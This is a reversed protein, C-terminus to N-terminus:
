LSVNPDVDADYDISAFGFGFLKYFDKRYGEIDSIQQLNDSSAQQWLRDVEQQVDERMELDDIRIRGEEDVPVDSGSYLRDRFLRVIQEICDEHLGKQKM